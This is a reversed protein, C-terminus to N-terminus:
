GRQRKRCLIGAPAAHRSSVSSTCVNIALPQGVSLGYAIRRAVRQISRESHYPRARLKQGAQVLHM